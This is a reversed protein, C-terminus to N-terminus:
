CFVMFRVNAPRNKAAAVNRAVTRLTVGHPFVAHDHLIREASIRHRQPEEVSQEFGVGPNLVHALPVLVFETVTSTIKYPVGYQKMGVSFKAGSSLREPGRVTDKVTGSGDLEGHRTPDAVIDFLEAAPARVETQRTVQQPGSDITRIDAM